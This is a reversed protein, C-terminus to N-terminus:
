ESSYVCTYGKNMELARDIMEKIFKRDGTYVPIVGSTHQILWDNITKRTNKGPRCCITFVGDSLKIIKRYNKEKGIRM